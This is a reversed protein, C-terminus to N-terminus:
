NRKGIKYPKLFNLVSIVIKWAKDLGYRLNMVYNM